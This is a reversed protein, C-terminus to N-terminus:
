FSALVTLRGTVTPDNDTDLKNFILNPIIEIGSNPMWSYGAIFWNKATSDGFENRDLTDFRGIIRSTESLDYSGFVSVGLLTDDDNPTDFKYGVFANGAVSTGGDFAYYDGGLSAVWHETPNFELQGYLRKFKDTEQKGGSNNAFMFAYKISGDSTLPGNVAIGLDRSSAHKNAAMITRDLGRYGWHKESVAWLPPRSIGFMVHHGKGWVNKWRVYMDKIFAAQKGTNTVTADVAELRLRGDFQDSIVFDASFNVRRLDFSNEGDHAGDPSSFVYVYDSFLSGSLKVSSQALVNPVAFGSAITIALLFLFQRKM